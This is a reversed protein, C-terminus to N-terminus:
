KNENLEGILKIRLEDNFLDVIFNYQTDNLEDSYKDFNNIDNKVDIVVELIKVKDELTLETPCLEIITDRVRGDGINNANVEFIYQLLVMRESYSLIQNRLAGNM